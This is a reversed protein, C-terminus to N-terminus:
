VCVCWVYTTQFSTVSYVPTHHVRFTREFPLLKTYCWGHLLGLASYTCWKRTCHIWFVSCFTVWHSDCAVLTGHTQELAPFLATYFGGIIVNLSYVTFLYTRKMIISLTSRTTTATSQVTDPVTFWVAAQSELVQTECPCSGQGNVPRYM